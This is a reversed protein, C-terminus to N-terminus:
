QYSQLVVLLLYQVHTEMLSAPISTTRETTNSAYRRSLIWRSLRGQMSKWKETTRFMIQWSYCGCVALQLREREHLVLIICKLHRCWFTIPVWLVPMIGLFLISSAWEHGILDNSNMCCTLTRCNRGLTLRFLANWLKWRASLNINYISPLSIRCFQRKTGYLCRSYM